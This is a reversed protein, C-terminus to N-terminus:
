FPDFLIVPRNIPDRGERASKRGELALGAAYIEANTTSKVASSTRSIVPFLFIRSPFLSLLPFVQATTSCRAEKTWGKGEWPIEVYTPSPFNM